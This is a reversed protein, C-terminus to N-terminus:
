APTAALSHTVNREDLTGGAELCFVFEPVEPWGHKLCERRRMKFLDSLTEALDRSM